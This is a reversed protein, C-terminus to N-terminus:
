LPISVIPAILLLFTDFIKKNVKSAVGVLPEETNAVPIPRVVGEKALTITIAVSIGKAVVFPPLMLSLSPPLSPPLRRHILFIHPLSFQHILRLHLPPSQLYCRIRKSVNISLRTSSFPLIM